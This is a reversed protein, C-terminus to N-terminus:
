GLSDLMQRLAQNDPEIELGRQFMGRAKRDEGLKLHSMGLNYYVEGKTIGMVPDINQLVMSRYVRQADKWMERQVYIRGLGIMTAVDTPNTRFAEKYSSLAEDIRGQAELIGGLRQRYRAVDKAKRSKKAAEALAEYLPAAETHRGLGFYLDALPAQVRADGPAMEAAREFLPVAQ